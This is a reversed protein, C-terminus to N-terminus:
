DKKPKVTISKGGVEEVAAKYESDTKDNHVFYEGFVYGSRGFVSSLPQDEKSHDNTWAPDNEFYMKWDEILDADASTITVEEGKALFVAVKEGNDSFGDDSRGLMIMFENAM